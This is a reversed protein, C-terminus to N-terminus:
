ILYTRGQKWKKQVYFKGDKFKEIPATYHSILKGQEGFLPNHSDVIHPKEGRFVVNYMHPTLLGCDKELELCGNILFSDRAKQASLQTLIAKEACEGLGHNVAESFPIVKRTGFLRKISERERGRLAEYIKTLPIQGPEYNGLEKHIEPNDIEYSLGWSRPVISGKELGSMVLRPYLAELNRLSDRIRTNKNSMKPLM